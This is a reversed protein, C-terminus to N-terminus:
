PYFLGDPDPVAPLVPFILLSHDSLLVATHARTAHCSPHEQEITGANRPTCFLRLSFFSEEM